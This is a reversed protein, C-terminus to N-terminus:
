VTGNYHFDYPQANTPTATGIWYVLVADPRAYTGDTGHQVVALDPAGGGGYGGGGDGGGGGTGPNRVTKDAVTALKTILRQAGSPPLRRPPIGGNLDSDDKVLEPWARIPSATADVSIAIVRAKVTGGGGHGPVTITDGVNYTAYPQPGVLSSTSATISLLPQASEVLQARATNTSAQESNGPTLGVEIRGYASIGATDLVERWTGNALQAGVATFRASASSTDHSMLSGGNKGHTLAVTGSRDVGKRNWAHLTMTDADFSIDIDSEGLQAAIDALNTTYIAFSYDDPTDAWPQGASDHTATFGLNVQAGLVGRNAAETCLALLVQGRHWGPVTPSGNNVKWATDTELLTGTKSGVSNLTFVCGILGM